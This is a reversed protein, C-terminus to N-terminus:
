TVILHLELCNPIALGTTEVTHYSFYLNKRNHRSSKHKGPFRLSVLQPEFEFLKEFCQSLSSHYPEM